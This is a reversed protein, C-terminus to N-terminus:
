FENIAGKEIIEGDIVDDESTDSLLRKLEDSITKAGLNNIQIINNTVSQVGQGVAKNFMDLMM